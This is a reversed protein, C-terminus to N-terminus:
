TSTKMCAIMIIVCRICFKAKSVAFCISHQMIAIAETTRAQLINSRILDKLESCVSEQRLETLSKDKPCSLNLMLILRRFQPLKRGDAKSSDKKDDRRAMARVYTM